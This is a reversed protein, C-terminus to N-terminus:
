QGHIYLCSQYGISLMVQLYYTNGSSTSLCFLHDRKVYEHVAHAISNELDAFIWLTVAKGISSLQQSKKSSQRSVATLYLVPCFALLSDVEGSQWSLQRGPTLHVVLSAHTPMSLGQSVILSQMCGHCVSKVCMESCFYGHVTLYLFFADGPRRRKCSLYLWHALYHTM